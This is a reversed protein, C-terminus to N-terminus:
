TERVATDEINNNAPCLYVTHLSDEVIAGCRPCTCPMHPRIAAVRSAPWCAGAIVTELDFKFSYMDLNKSCKRVLSQTANMDVGSEIGKGNFHDEARVLDKRFYADMVIYKHQM